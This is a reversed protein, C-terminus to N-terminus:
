NNIIRELEKRDMTYKDTIQATVISDKKSKQEKRYAVLNKTEKKIEDLM